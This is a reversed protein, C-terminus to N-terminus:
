SDNREGTWTLLEARVPGVLEAVLPRASADREARACVEALRTAGLMAASSKLTHAQRAALDADPGAIDDSRVDLESLFSGVLAVVISRDGLEDVLVDLAGTDVTGSGAVAADADVRTADGGPGSADGDAADSATTRWIEDLTTRLGDLGVPKALFANMGAELSAQEDAATSSATVGIVPVTWGRSRIAHTADRGNMGPLQHDMLVADFTETELLEIGAEASEAIVADIALRDLQARALEQNVPTDEVVLVRRRRPGDVATPAPADASGADDPEGEVLPLVVTFRTGVGVQSEVDISGEMAEVLRRVIALGLGAGRRDGGSPLTTYATFLDETSDEAIGRGTDNVVIVLRDDDTAVDVTVSGADTFKVANGVLNGVIQTLRTPDVTVVRPVDDDVTATVVLRGAAASRSSTVVDDVLSRVDTPRPNLRFEGVDLRATDLLDDTVSTLHLLQRQLTAAMDHQDSPLRPDSALLEAIGAMAHLPNRLEHSVTALLNTRREVEAVAEDRLRSVALTAARDDSVNRSTILIGGVEPDDLLNTATVELTEVTQDAAVVRFDGTVERGPESVVDDRMALVRAADEPVLIDLITRDEWFEAPYGLTARYRGSTEIVEGDADILTLTGAAHELIKGVRIDDVRPRLTTPEVTAIMGLFDSSPVQSDARLARITLLGDFESGDARVFRKATEFEDLDGDILQRLYGQTWPRDDSRTLTSVVLDTGREHGFLEWFARNGGIIRGDADSLSLSTPASEFARLLLADLDRRM